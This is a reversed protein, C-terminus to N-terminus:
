NALYMGGDCVRVYEHVLTMSPMCDSQESSLLLTQIFRFMLRPARGPAEQPIAPGYRVVLRGVTTIELLYDPM